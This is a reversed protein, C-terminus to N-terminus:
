VRFDSAACSAAALDTAILDTATGPAFRFEYVQAPPPLEALESRLISVEKPAEIGIRVTNGRVALIRVTVNGGIVISEDSKRSLVLM